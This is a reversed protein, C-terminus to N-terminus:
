CKRMLPAKMNDIIYQYRENLEGDSMKTMSTDKAYKKCAPLKKYYYNRCQPFATDIVDICMTNDERTRGLVQRTTVESKFPEALVITLRLGAIDTAAGASKTTSLIVRKTLAIEKEEKSVVSTYVGIDDELFPFIELIYDKVVSIAKNTGIYIMFKQGYRMTARLGIDMLVVLIKKFNDQHVVYNTYKNRDLGYTKNRCQSIQLVTPRSNYSMANYYTHPDNDKDFLDIAPINRFYLQYIQNERESSKIPTATLYYTKYVNTFFDIMCINMFNLHAEDYIKIGIKLYKFLEGLKDWGNNSGYAQLTDHSALFLKIKKLKDASMRLLKQIQVSGTITYIDKRQIDTYEVTKDEWQKLWSVSNTIVIGRIGTYALTAISIYTKGKGTFLNVSLQSDQSTKRYEAQGLMFRLAEKQTEDRPLYKIYIDEHVEYRYYSNVHVHADTELLKEVLWIDIGKPIYLKKNNEDYYMGYYYYSHTVPEYVKFYNELKTCDGFEYDNIIISTNHIEIKHNSKQM